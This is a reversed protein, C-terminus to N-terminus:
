PDCLDVLTNEDLLSSFQSQQSNEKKLAEKRFEADERSQTLVTHETQNKRHLYSFRESRL